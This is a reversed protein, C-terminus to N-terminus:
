NDITRFRLFVYIVILFPAFSMSAFKTLQQFFQYFSAEILSAAEIGYNVFTRTIEMTGFFFVFLLHFAVLLLLAETYARKKRKIYPSLTILLSITLPVNASYSSVNIPVVVSSRKGGRIFGFSTNIVDREKTLGELRVDKAGAIFKSAVFTVGYGYTDKIQIWLISLVIYLFFFIIVASVIRHEAIIQKLIRRM